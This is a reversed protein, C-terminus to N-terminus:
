SRIRKRIQSGKFLSSCELAALIKILQNKRTPPLGSSRSENCTSMDLPLAGAPARLHLLSHFRSAVEGKRGSATGGM